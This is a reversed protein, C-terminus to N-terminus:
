TSYRKVRKANWAFVKMKVPIYFTKKIEEESVDDEKMNKWRDTFKFAAEIVSRMIRGCGKEM